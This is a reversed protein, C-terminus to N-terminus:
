SRPLRAPAECPGRPPEGRAPEDVDGEDDVIRPMITPPPREGCRRTGFHREGRELVHQPASAVVGNVPEDLEVRRRPAGLRDGCTRGPLPRFGCMASEVAGATTRLLVEPGDTRPPGQIRDLMAIGRRTMRAHLEDIDLVRPTLHNIHTSALGAIDAAVSSVQALRDYWTRDVPEDTLTLSGVALSLFTEARPESLGGEVTAEDALALLPPAFLTRRSLFADIQLTLDEDFFRRDDPVLVSVFLRFPNQALEEPDLPRFATSVVPIPNAGAERLDYFGVPHMGFAALLRGFQALEGPTGVRVAGHREATVRSLPEGNAVGRERVVEANVESSM